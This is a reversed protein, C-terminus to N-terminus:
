QAYFIRVLKIYIRQGQSLSKQVVSVSKNQGKDCKGHYLKLSMMHYVNLSKDKIDPANCKHTNTDGPNEKLTVEM